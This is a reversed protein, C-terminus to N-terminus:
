GYIQQLVALSQDLSAQTPASGSFAPTQAAALYQGVTLAAGLQPYAKAQEQLVPLNGASLYSYFAASKQPDLLTKILANIAEPAAAAGPREKKGVNPWWRNLAATTAVYAAAGAAGVGAVPLAGLGALAAAGGGILPVGSIAGAGATALGGAIGGAIVSSAAGGVSPGGPRVSQAKAAGTVPTIGGAVAAAGASLWIQRIQERSGGDLGDGIYRNYEKVMTELLKGREVPFSGRREKETKGNPNGPVAKANAANTAYQSMVAIAASPSYPAGTPNFFTNFALQKVLEDPSLTTGDALQTEKFQDNVPKFSAAALETAGISPAAKESFKKATAPDMGGTIYKTYLKWQADQIAATRKLTDQLIVKDVGQNARANANNITATTRASQGSDTLWSRLTQARQEFTKSDTRDNEAAVDFYAKFADIRNKPTDAALRGRNDLDTKWLDVAGRSLVDAENAKNKSMAAQAALKLYSDSAGGLGALTADAGLGAGAARIAATVDNAQGTAAALNADTQAQMAATRQQSLKLLDDYAKQPDPFEVPKEALALALKTLEEQSISGKPGDGLLQQIQEWTMSPISVDVPVYSPGPMATATQPVPMQRTVPGTVPASGQGGRGTTPVTRTPAVTGGNKGYDGMWANIYQRVSLPNGVGPPQVDRGAKIASWGAPYYWNAPVATVDGGNQRLIRSVQFAAVADQVEKPADMARMNAYQGYGAEKAWGRWTPTRDSNMIQYYGSASSGASNPVNRNGSERQRITALIRAIVPDNVLAAAGTPAM